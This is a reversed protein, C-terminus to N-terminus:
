VPVLIFENDVTPYAYYERGLGLEDCLSCIKEIM